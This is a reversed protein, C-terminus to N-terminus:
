FQGLRGQLLHLLSYGRAPAPTFSLVFVLVILAGLVARKAGLPAAEDFVRPHDLPMRGRLHLVFLVGALVLWTMHFFVGLVAMAGIVGRSLLRTRRGLLAYAVHGGDFQGFPLLNVGTVLLGVWGAWGIPHLIIDSGAPIPGLLLRALLKFLLPEGFSWGAESPVIPAVRSLALGVALVPLTLAFGAL